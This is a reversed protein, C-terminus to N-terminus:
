NTRENNEKSKKFEKYWSRVTSECAHLRLALQSVTLKDPYESLLRFAEKKKELNLRKTAALSM